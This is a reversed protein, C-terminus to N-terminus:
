FGSLKLFLDMEAEFTSASERDDPEEDEEEDDNPEFGKKAKREKELKIFRTRVDDADDWRNGAILLLVKASVVLSRFADSVNNDENQSVEIM